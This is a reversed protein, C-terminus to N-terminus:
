PQYRLSVFLSRGPQNYYAATEYDEDFLNDLRAQVRWAQDIRYEGRLDVTLYADLKRTNAFDDYRKGVGNLAAGLSFAGFTRQVDINISQEARRPLLNDRNPGDSKNVPDLLTLNADLDWQGLQTGVIVELGRIRTSDINAPAYSNADFAILDDIDTQYVHLSWHGWGHHAALGLELSKSQEPSLDPNGFYPYYLENFTPAKFATGYSASLRPGGAFAYAWALSGTTERGFQENDDGRLSLQWEHQGYQGLYQGFLGTNDRSSVAYATSGDVEDNQYDLGLTLLQDEALSLDNQWSLTDRRTDFSASFADDKFNDSEDWSRGGKLAISWIEGASFSVGLGLVQQMTESENQYSGDYQSDADSRLWHADVAAGNDFRYGARLSGSLNRYGDKDPEHTFCGAVWPEGNCANFGQTDVGSVSANFSAKDGGGSL